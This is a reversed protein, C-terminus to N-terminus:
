TCHPLWDILRASVGGCAARRWTAAHPCAANKISSQCQSSCHLQVLPAVVKFFPLLQQYPFELKCWCLWVAARWGVRRHLDRGGAPSDSPPVRGVRLLPPIPVRNPPMGAPARGGAPPLPTPHPYTTCVLRTPSGCGLPCPSPLSPSGGRGSNVRIVGGRALRRCRFVYRGVLTAIRDAAGAAAAGVSKKHPNDM